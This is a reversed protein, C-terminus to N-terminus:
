SIRVARADTQAFFLLDVLFFSGFSAPKVTGVVAANLAADPIQGQNVDLLNGPPQSGAQPVQKAADSQRRAKIRTVPTSFGEVEADCSLCV